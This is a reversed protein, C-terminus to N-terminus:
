VFHIVETAVSYVGVCENTVGVYGVSISFHPTNRYDLLGDNMVCKAKTHKVGHYVIVHNIAHM